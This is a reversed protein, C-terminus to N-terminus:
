VNMLEQFVNMASAPLGLLVNIIKKETGNSLFLIVEKEPLAVPGSLVPEGWGFDTTYFSLKSWTTILLTSALSPRARTLEFYDIASRMYSDTVMKIADQVLGVANSLPKDLLDGAQCISNTLVIGNGFYGKPLPPRFKPRGDVAFLLKIQQEPLLNLARTRAKWVFASLAEFTTCNELAGEERAKMKLKELKESDFSFSRYLMKEECLDNNTSSTGTIESFEHHPYEIRPPNRAKLISRDLFPPATLPLGRAIKGWSNVFEMAGIGDFMCHNMCLGLSFGGCKFKTVQVVLPPMELINKAGPVDYVLKGLTEPDPKTTDGIEEIACDTEAEVFVAGEGTCDVILKGEASIALRGALPYYHVLVKKLADKIVEGAEDNGKDVSKFCYITRVTVAINQDLNSLFYLGKETEVAPSVLTPKGQKVRLEFADGNTTNDMAVPKGFEAVKMIGALVAGGLYVMHKRRPPDEIRLRLKKLGDKNGKLVVDLYRDLIEKELRSPLGPYMTSGGSLVIHQYLMMRNDIDMEQICRFVMDAMGDGEVDILEPTFLAEPAQFRETGVKIVRGDPLTYNKVLITTELGLQYERKYDYSIYCLKEKIERVTEFDATRNMSYGRRSLLDVLYSTIHRGAVNMRKTLHPFSYGDVVPVVHTVGDGSDIVLGTLLGQAYLTLVAQIQIFVGAFNYKEFMTEVMKERNKSPNLPPDTLLIQCETPDIKLESYFAHDWVHGMDDWNQVIGNNVPYNIDLQHRFEACAEGVIVDKIEQEMLSEEYRLLPRGVVCPFVSTPFNEGAFGCKVYGTGNDCVVVNRSNMNLQQQQYNTATQAPKEDVANEEVRLEDLQLFSPTVPNRRPRSTLFFSGFLFSSSTTDM